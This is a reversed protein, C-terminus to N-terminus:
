IEISFTPTDTDPPYNNRSSDDPSAHIALNCMCILSFVVLINSLFKM